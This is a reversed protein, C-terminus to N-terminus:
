ELNTILDKRELMTIVIKVNEVSFLGKHDSFASIRKLTVVTSKVTLSPYKINLKFTNRLEKTLIVKMFVSTVSLGIGAKRFM